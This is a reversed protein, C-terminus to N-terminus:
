KSVGLSKEIERGKETVAWPSKHEDRSRFRGVWNTTEDPAFGEGRLDAWSCGALLCAACCAAGAWQWVTPFSLFPSSESRFM